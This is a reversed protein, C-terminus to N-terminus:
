SLIAFYGEVDKEVAQLTEVLEQSQSKDQNGKAQSVLSKAMNSTVFGGGQGMMNLRTSATSLMLKLHADKINEKQECSLQAKEVKCLNEFTAKTSM